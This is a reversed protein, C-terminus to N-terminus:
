DIASVESAVRLSWTGPPLACLATCAHYQWWPLLSCIVYGPMRGHKSRTVRAHTCTGCRNRMRSDVERAPPEVGPLMLSNPKPM